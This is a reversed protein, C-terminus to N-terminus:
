YARPGRKWSLWFLLLGTLVLLGGAFGLRSEASLAEVPWRVWVLLSKVFASEYYHTWSSVVSLGVVLMPILWSERRQWVIGASLLCGLLVALAWAYLPGILMASIWDAMNLTPYYQQFGTPGRQEYVQAMAIWRIAQLQQAGIILFPIALVHQALVPWNLHQEFLRPRM